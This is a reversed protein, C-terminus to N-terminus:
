LKLNGLILEACPSLWYQNLATSVLWGWSDWLAGTGYRVICWQVNRNQITCQPIHSLHMTPNTLNTYLLPMLGCSTSCLKPIRLKVHSYRVMWVGVQREIYFNWRAPIPFGMMFILCDFSWRIKIIPIGMGSFIPRFISVLGLYLLTSIFIRSLIIIDTWEYVDALHSGSSGSELHGQGGVCKVKVKVKSGMCCNMMQNTSRM